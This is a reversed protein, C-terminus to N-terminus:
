TSSSAIPRGEPITNLEHRPLRDDVNGLPPYSLYGITINLQSIVAYFCRATKENVVFSSLFGSPTTVLTHVGQIFVIAHMTTIQVRM